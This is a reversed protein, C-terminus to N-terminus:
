RKEAGQVPVPLQRLLPDGSVIDEPHDLTSSSGRPQGVLGVAVGEPGGPDGGIELVAARDLVGLGNGGMLGRPRGLEIVPGLVLDGEVLDLPDRNLVVRSM